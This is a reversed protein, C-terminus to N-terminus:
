TRKRKPQQKKIRIRGNRQFVITSISGSLVTLLGELMTGNNYKIESM